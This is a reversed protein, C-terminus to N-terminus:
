KLFYDIKMLIKDLNERYKLHGSAEETVDYNEVGDVLLPWNGVAKELRSISYFQSLVKDTKSYTNILRGAVVGKCGKWTSLDLPAAGGLLLVDHVKCGLEQLRQLCFYIVRTGLSFGVLNICANGLRKSAILDALVYGTTEAKKARKKFPNSTMIMALHAVKLIPAAVIMGISHFIASFLEKKAMKKASGSDWRLAFTHGQQPNNIIKMWSEEMEDEQSLWGSIVITTTLSSQPKIQELSFEKIRKSPAVSKVIKSAFKIFTKSIAKASPDKSYDEMRDSLNRIKSDYNARIYETMNITSEEIMWNPIFSLLEQECTLVLTWENYQQKIDFLSKFNLQFLDTIVSRILQRFYPNYIEQIQLANENYYQYTNSFVLVLSIITFFRSIQDTNELFKNVASDLGQKCGKYKELFNHDEIGVLALFNDLLLCPMKIEEPFYSLVVIAVADRMEKGCISSDFARIEQKKIKELMSQLYKKFSDEFRQFETDRRHMWDEIIQNKLNNSYNKLWIEPFVMFESEAFIKFDREYLEIFGMVESYQEKSTKTLIDNLRGRFLNLNRQNEENLIQHIQEFLYPKLVKCTEILEQELNQIIKQFMSDEKQHGIFETYLRLFRDVCNSTADEVIALFESVKEVDESKEEIEKMVRKAQNQLEKRLGEKNVELYLDITCNRIRDLNKQNLPEKVKNKALQENLVIEWELALQENPLPYVLNDAWSAIGQVIKKITKKSVTM